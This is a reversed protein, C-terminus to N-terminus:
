AFSTPTPGATAALPTGRASTKMVVLTHFVLWPRSVVFRAKSRLRLLVALGRRLNDEAPVQLVVEDNNWLGDGRGPDALVDVHEAEIEVRVVHARESREVGRFTSDFRIGEGGRESPGCRGSCATSDTEVGVPIDNDAAGV